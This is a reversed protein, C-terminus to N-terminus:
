TGKLIRTVKPKYENRTALENGKSKIYLVAIIFFSFAVVASCISPNSDFYLAIEQGIVAGTILSIIPVMYLLFSAKLLSSTEFSLTVRDDVRAGLTNIARVEMEEGGGLVNCSSKVSCSECASTKSVKVWASTSDIKTVIGEETTM